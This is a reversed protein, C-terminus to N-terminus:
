IMLKTQNQKCDWVRLIEVEADNFIYFFMYEKVIKVRVVENNTKAGIETFEAILNTADAFLKELKKATATLFTKAEWFNYTHFIKL